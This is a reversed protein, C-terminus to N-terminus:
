WILQLWNPFELLQLSLTQQSQLYNLSSLLHTDIVFPQQLMVKGFLNFFAKFKESARVFVLFIFSCFRMWHLVYFFSLCVSPHAPMCLKGGYNGHSADGHLFMAIPLGVNKSRGCVVANKGFTEVGSHLCFTVM